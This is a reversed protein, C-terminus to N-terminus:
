AFAVSDNDLKFAQDSDATNSLSLQV